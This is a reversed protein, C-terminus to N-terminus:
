WNGFCFFVVLNFVVVIVVSVMSYYIVVCRCYSGGSNRGVGFVIYVVNMLVYCLWMWFLRGNDLWRNYFVVWMNLVNVSVVVILMGVLMRIFMFWMVCLM